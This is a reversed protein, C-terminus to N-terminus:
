EGHGVRVRFKYPSDPSGLVLTAETRAFFVPGANGTKGGLEQGDVWSGLKSGRDVVGIRAASAVIAIHHRSIQLPNMDSIMLDNYALPDPSRRGIRFPFQTIEFPTAPLAAAARPTLGELTVTLQGKPPIVVLPENSVPLHQPDTKQLQLIKADAERLREFLIKLLTLAVKPDTQLSNFFEERQIENVVTATVATVTASRPKEDIMGMEGFTEGVGLYALHVRQGDLEKTVEVQGQGIVYATEGFDNERVIVEGAEYRRLTIV